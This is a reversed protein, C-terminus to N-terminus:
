VLPERPKVLLLAVPIKETLGTGGMTTTAGPIVDRLTAGPEETVSVIVIVGIPPYEPASCNEQVPSGFFAVQLKWGAVTVTLPM